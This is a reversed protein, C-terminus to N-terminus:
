VHIAKLTKVKPGPMRITKDGVGHCLSARLVVILGEVAVVLLLAANTSEVLAIM